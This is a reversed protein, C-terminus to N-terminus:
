RLTSGEVFDGVWDKETESVWVKFSKGRWRIFAVDNIVKGHNVIVGVYHFSCDYGQEDVCAEKIVMGFLSGIDNLVVPDSISLPLGVIKLWAVRDFPIPQGEWLLPADFCDKRKVMEDKAMVAHENSQFEVLISLGGIYRVFGEQLKMERLTSRINKLVELSKLRVYITRGHMSRFAEVSDDVTVMKGMSEGTSAEKFSMNNVEVWTFVFPKLSPGKGATKSPRTKRVDRKSQDIEGEELVFRAINFKLKFDGLRVSSLTKLLEKCDKVDLFSVFGFRKGEKNRKRAIYIDFITGMGRLVAALDAGSCRDPLNNVFLKTIRAKISAPIPNRSTAM